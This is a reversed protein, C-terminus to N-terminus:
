WALPLSTARDTRTGCSLPSRNVLPASPSPPPLEWPDEGMGDSFVRDRGLDTALRLDTNQTSAVGCYCPTQQGTNQDFCESDFNTFHKFQTTLADYSMSDPQHFEHDLGILHGSEHTATWCLEPINDGHAASFVFAITNLLPTGCAWPAIGLIGSSLGLNGPTGGIMVERHPVNGPDTDTVAILYPAYVRRACKVLANWSEDGYSFGLLTRTGSILSSANNVASDPGGHVICNGACRNLYLLTPATPSGLPNTEPGPDPSMPSAALAPVVGALIGVLIALAPYDPVFRIGSASM